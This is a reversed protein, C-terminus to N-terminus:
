PSDLLGDLLTLNIVIKITLLVITYTFIFDWYEKRPRTEELLAFGYMSLPYVLGFLGANQFMSQIFCIYMLNQTNSIVIYFFTEVLRMVMSSPRTFNWSRQLHHLKIEKDLETIQLIKKRSTKSKRIM